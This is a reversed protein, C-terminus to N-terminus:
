SSRGGRPRIFSMQGFGEKRLSCCRCKMGVGKFLIACSKCVRSVILCSQSKGFIGGIMNPAFMLNKKGLRSVDRSPQLFCLYEGWSTISVHRGDQM